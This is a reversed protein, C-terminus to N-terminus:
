HRWWQTIKHFNLKRCYKLHMIKDLVKAIGLEIERIKRFDVWNAGECSKRRLMIKKIESEPRNKEFRESTEKRQYFFEASKRRNGKNQSRTWAERISRQAVPPPQHWASSSLHLRKGLERAGWFIKRKKRGRAKQYKKAFYDGTWLQNIQNM